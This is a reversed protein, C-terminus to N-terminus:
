QQAQPPQATGQARVEPNATAVAGPAPAQQGLIVAMQDASLGAPNAAQAQAPAPAPATAQAQAQPQVDAPAQSQAQAQAPAPAVAEKQQQLTTRLTNQVEALKAAANKDFTAAATLAALQQATNGIPEPEGDAGIKVNPDAM